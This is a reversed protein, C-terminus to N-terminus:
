KNILMSALSPSTSFMSINVVLIDIQSPSIGSKEFLKHLCDLFFEEVEVISDVLSPHSEKGSFIVNPGYTQEGIGSNVVAKLLFKFEELGLVKTRKMVDRCLQTGLMRDDSPKYCQYDLIYCQQDRKADFHKWLKFALYLLPIAYLLFLPEM